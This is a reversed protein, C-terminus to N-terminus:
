PGGLVAAAAAALAVALAAVLPWRPRRQASGTAPPEPVREQFRLVTDDPDLGVCAAYARLHGIVFARGPIRELQDTELAEVVSFPLRTGRAVDERSLGRLERQKSLYRGFSDM